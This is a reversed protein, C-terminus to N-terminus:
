GETAAIVWLAFASTCSDDEVIATGERLLQAVTQMTQLLPESSGREIILEHSSVGLDAIDQRSDPCLSELDDLLDGFEAITADDEEVLDGANISALQYELPADVTSTPDGADDNDGGCAVILAVACVSCIALVLQRARRVM